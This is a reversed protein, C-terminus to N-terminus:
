RRDPKEAILYTLGYVVLGGVLVLLPAIIRMAGENLTAALFIGVVMAMLVLGGSVEAILKRLLRIIKSLM